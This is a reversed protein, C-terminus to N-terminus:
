RYGVRQGNTRLAATLNNNGLIQAHHGARLQIYFRASIYSQALVVKDYEIIFIVPTIIGIASGLIIGHSKIRISRLILGSVILSSLTIGKSIYFTSQIGGITIYIGSGATRCDSRSFPSFHNQLGAGLCVGILNSHFAGIALGQGIVRNGNSRCLQLIRITRIGFGCSIGVTFESIGIASPVALTQMYIIGTNYSLIRGTCFFTYLSEGTSTTVAVGFCNGLHSM